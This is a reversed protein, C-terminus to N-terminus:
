KRSKSKNKKGRKNIDLLETNIPIEDKKIVQLQQKTYAVNNDIGDKGTGNLQYMVPQDPNLIIKEITRDKDNWRIDGSRFNQGIRKNNSASIPYDLVTRVHEHLPLIDNSFKSYLIHGTLPKRKPAYENIIQILEPLDAVWGKVTKKKLIEQANQFKMITSGIEKNKREVLANQRHRNALTYKVSANNENFYTKTENKFETGQDFQIVKPIKLIKRSYIKQFAKVISSATKHKLPEADCKRDYVDVVVLCYKYGFKDTPLYLLDAEQFYDKQLINRSISPYKDEKKQPTTLNKILHQGTGDKKKEKLNKYFEAINAM